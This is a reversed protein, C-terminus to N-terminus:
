NGISTRGQRATAILCGKLCFDVFWSCEALAVYLAARWTNPRAHEVSAATERLTRSLEDINRKAILTFCEAQEALENAVQLSYLESLALLGFHTEIRDALAKSWREPRHVRFVAALPDRQMEAILWRENGLEDFYPHFPNPLISFGSKEKEKNCPWCTPILNVPTVAVGPQNAKALYHDLTYVDRHECIPCRQTPPAQMLMGRHMPSMDRYAALMSAKTVREGTENSIREHTADLTSADGKMALRIYDCELSRLFDVDQPKAGSLTDVVSLSPRPLTRM